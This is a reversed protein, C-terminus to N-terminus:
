KKRGLFIDGSRSRVGYIALVGILILVLWKLIARGMSDRGLVKSMLFLHPHSEPTHIQYQAPPPAVWSLDEPTTTIPNAGMSWVLFCCVGAISLLFKKM